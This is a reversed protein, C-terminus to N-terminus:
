SAEPSAEAPAQKLAASSEIRDIRQRAEAALSLQSAGEVADQLLSDIFTNGTEVKKEEETEPEAGPIAERPAGREVVKRYMTLADADKGQLELVRGHNLLAHFHLYSDAPAASTAAIYREIAADLKSPDNDTFSQSELTQGLAILGRAKDEGGASKLFKEYTESARAFDEMVYYCNGQLYLAHLGTPSSGRKDVLPQLGDIAAQLKATREAADQSTLGIGINEHATTLIRANEIASSEGRRNLTVYIALALVLVGITALIATRYQNFDDVLTTITEAVEDKKLEERDIHKAAM